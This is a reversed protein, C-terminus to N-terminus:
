ETRIGVLADTRDLAYTGPGVVCQFYNFFFYPSKPPCWALHPCTRFIEGGVPEFGPGDLGCCGTIDVTSDRGGTFVGALVNKVTEVCVYWVKRRVSERDYSIYLPWIHSVHLSTCLLIQKSAKLFTASLLGLWQLSSLILIYKLCATVVHVTNM